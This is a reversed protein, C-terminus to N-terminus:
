LLWLLYLYSVSFAVIKPLNDLIHTSTAEFFAWNMKERNQANFSCVVSSFHSHISTIQKVLHTLLNQQM